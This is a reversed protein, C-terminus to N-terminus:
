EGMLLRLQTQITLLQEMANEMPLTGQLYTEPNQLYSSASTIGAPLVSLIERLHVAATEAEKVCDTTEAGQQTWLRVTELTDLAREVKKRAAPVFASIEAMMLRSEQAPTLDMEGKASEYRERSNQLTQLEQKGAALKKELATIEWQAATIAATIEQVQKQLRERAKETNGLIKQLFTTKKQNQLELQKKQLNERLESLRTQLEPLQAERCSLADELELFRSYAQLKELLPEM